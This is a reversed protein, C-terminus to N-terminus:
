THTTTELHYLFVPNREVLNMILFRSIIWFSFKAESNYDKLFGVEVYVTYMCLDLFFTAGERWLLYYHHGTLWWYSISGVISIDSDTEGYQMLTTCTSLATKVLAQIEPLIHCVGTQHVRPRSMTLQRSAHINTKSQNKVLTCWGWGIALKFSIQIMLYILRSQITGQKPLPFEINFFQEYKQIISVGVNLAEETENYAAPQAWALYPQLPWM